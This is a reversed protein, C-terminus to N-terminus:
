VNQVAVPKKVEETTVKVTSKKSKKHHKKKKQVMGQEGVQVLNQDDKHQKKEEKFLDTGLMKEAADFSKIQGFTQYLNNKLEQKQEESLAM